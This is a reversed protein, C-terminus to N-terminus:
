ELNRQYIFSNGKKGIRDIAGVYYLINLATQSAGLPIGSAKKYDKSTFEKGLTEPILQLYDSPKGIHFEEILETPIRDCRTSGKKKDKSWGDLIKYEELNLMIIQLRFNPELLFDKIRYLEPFISYPTGTKPSKRPPSIEGTQPNVWRIWKTNPIPYVVTVPAFTLFASLKRRLKNFNRTQIEIIEQGTCIDAVFGGVRIEHNISDPSIYNKLVSHVTKEGLTGIGNLGQQQGIVEDCVKQFLLKDM